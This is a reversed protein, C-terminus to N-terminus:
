AGISDDATDNDGTSKNIDDSFVCVDIIGANVTQYRKDAYAKESKEKLLGKDGERVRDGFAAFLTSHYHAATLGAPGAGIIIVKKM